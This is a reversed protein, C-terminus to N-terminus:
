SLDPFLDTSWEDVSSLSAELWLDDLLQKDAATTPTNLEMVRDDTTSKATLHNLLEDIYAKKKDRATQAAVRNKLKRRMLREEASLHDLNARKKPPAGDSQNEALSMIEDDEEKGM